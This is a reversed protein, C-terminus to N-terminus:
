YGLMADPGDGSMGAFDRNRRRFLGGFLPQFEISFNTERSIVDFVIGTRIIWDHDYRSLWVSYNIQEKAALDYSGTGYFSWRGLVDTGIAYRLTGRQLYDSRYGAGWNLGLVDDFRIATNFTRLRNLKWDHEGEILLRLNPLPIWSQYPRWISEFELLGLVEGGNDRNSIPFFNQAVDLFWFERAEGSVINPQSFVDPHRPENPDQGPFSRQRRPEPATGSGDRHRVVKELRNLLGVRLVGNENLSDIEDFQYFDTPRGDVQYLHGLSISPYMSHRLAHRHDDGDIWSFTRSLRTSATIGADLVWREFERGDGTGDGNMNTTDYYTFRTSSYPRISFAGWQFPAALELEQDFRFTNDKGQKAAPLLPDYDNHLWGANTSSTLLVDADGIGGLRESYLDYTAVPMEERFAPSLARDDGYSFNTINTRGTLTFLRNDDSHRIHLSSEPLEAGHHMYRYFESYVSPDSAGFITLDARWSNSLHIRTETNILSRDQQTVLTGDINNRILQLNKGKDNDLVFARITGEYLDGGRYTLETDLPLGRKEIYKLRLRWDGRFESAPRGTLFEHVAGGSDNMSNGLELSVEIGEASSYSGRLGKILFQSKEATFFHADPLPLTHRGSFALTNGRTIIEFQNEREIIEIQGSYIEFHPEGANCSTITIKRATSRIGQKVLRPARLLLIQDAGTPNKTILRMLVDEFVARNDQLSFMISKATLAETGGQMVVVNGELYISRLLGTWDTQTSQGDKTRKGLSQLFHEFRQIMLADTLVRRPDPAVMGRTPLGKSEGQGQGTSGGFRKKYEDRDFTVVMRDARLEAAGFPLQLGGAAVMEVVDGRVYTEHFAFSRERPGRTKQDAPKDQADQTPSTGQQAKGQPSRGQANAVTASALLIGVLGMLHVPGTGGSQLARAPRRM